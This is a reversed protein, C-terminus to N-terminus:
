VNHLSGVFAYVVVRVIRCMPYAFIEQPDNDVGCQGCGAVSALALTESRHVFRTYLEEVCGKM